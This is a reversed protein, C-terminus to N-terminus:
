KNFNINVALTLIPVIWWLELQSRQKWSSDKIQRKNQKTKNKRKGKKFHTFYWGRKVLFFIMWFHRRLHHVGSWFIPSFFLVQGATIINYHMYQTNRMILHFYIHLKGECRGQPSFTSHFNVVKAHWKLICTANLRILKGGFSGCKILPHCSCAKLGYAM